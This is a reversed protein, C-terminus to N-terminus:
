LIYTKSFFLVVCGNKNGCQSLSAAEPYRKEAMFLGGLNPALDPDDSALSQLRQWTAIADNRNGLFAYYYALTKYPVIQTSDAEVARQFANLASSKDATASYIWGLEIWARSFNSDLSVAQKLATIASASDGAQMSKRANDEARLAEPNSSGPLQM